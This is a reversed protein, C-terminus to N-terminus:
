FDMSGMSVAGRKIKEYLNEFNAVWNNLGRPKDIKLCKGSLLFKGGLVNIGDGVNILKALFKWGIHKNWGRSTNPLSSYM